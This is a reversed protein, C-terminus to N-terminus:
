ANVKKGREWSLEDRVAGWDKYRGKKIMNTYHEHERPTLKKLPDEKTSAPSGATTTDMTGERNERTSAAAAKSRELASLEGFAARAAALETAVTNPMGLVDVMYRYEQSVREREPTGPTIVNPILAKYKDLDTQIREVRRTATLQAAVRREAEAAAEQKLVTERYENAQARTMQGNAIFDELQQWNYAKEKATTATTAEAAKLREEYRIREERERQLEAEVRKEREEAAKARAWVQKFREGEPELPHPKDGDDVVPPSTTDAPPPANPLPPTVKSSDVPQEILTDPPM